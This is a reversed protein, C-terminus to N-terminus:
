TSFKDELKRNVKLNSDHNGLIEYTNVNPIGVALGSNKGLFFLGAPLTRIQLHHAM